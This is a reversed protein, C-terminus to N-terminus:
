SEYDIEYTIEDKNEEIIKVDFDDFVGQRKDQVMATEIQFFKKRFGEASYIKPTYQNKIHLLFWDLVKKIREEEIGDDVRLKQFHPIWKNLYIRRRTLHKEQITKALRLSCDKDFENVQSKDGYLNEKSSM